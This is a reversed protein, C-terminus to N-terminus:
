RTLQIRCFCRRCCCCCRWWFFTYFFCNWNTTETLKHVYLKEHTHTQTHSRLILETGIVRPINLQWKWDYLRIKYIRTLKLMYLSKMRLTFQEATTFPKKTGIGSSSQINTLPSRNFVCVCLQRKSWKSRWEFNFVMKKNFHNPTLYIILRELKLSSHPNKSFLLFFCTGFWGWTRNSDARFM